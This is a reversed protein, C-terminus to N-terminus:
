HTDTPTPSWTAFLDIMEQNFEPTDAPHRGTLLNGDRVAAANIWTAGANRLDTAIVPYSTVKKGKLVDAEVLLWPAHCLVSVPKHQKFFFEKIWFIAFANGRLVDANLPGGPLHLADFTGREAATTAEPQLGMDPTIEDSWQDVNWAKIPAPGDPNILVTKAGAEQLAKRPETLELLEVGSGCLIAVTKGELRNSM